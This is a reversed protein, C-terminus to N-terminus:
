DGDGDDENRDDNEEEEEEEEEQEEEEEEAQDDADGGGSGSNDDDEDVDHGGQGSDDDNGDDDNGSGDEDEDAGGGGPGSNDNDDADGGGPGSNDDDDAGPNVLVPNGDDMDERPEHYDRLIQGTGPVFVIERYTTGSLAVIKIRGFLTRSVTFEQYGQDRLQAIISDEVSQASAFVAPLCLISALIALRLWSPKM